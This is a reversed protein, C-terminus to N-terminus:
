LRANQGPNLHVNLRAITQFGPRRVTVKYVGAPLAAIAYDGNDDAHTSRRIGTDENVITVSSEPLAADSQDRVAGSVQAREEAILPVSVALTLVIGRWTM